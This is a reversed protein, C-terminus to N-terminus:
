NSTHLSQGVRSVTGRGKLRAITSRHIWHHYKPQGGWLQKHYLTVLPHGEMAKYIEQLLMPAARSKLVKLVAEDWTESM